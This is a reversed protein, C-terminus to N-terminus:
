ARVLDVLEHQLFWLLETSICRYYSDYDSAPLDLLRLAVSGEPLAVVIREGRARQERALERDGDTLAAAVWVGDTEALAAALVTVLGGSAAHHAITGDSGRRLEALARNSAIVLPAPRM